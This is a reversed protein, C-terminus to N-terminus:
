HLKVANQEAMMGDDLCMRGTVKANTVLRLILLFGGIIIMAIGSIYIENYLSRGNPISSSANHINPIIPIGTVDAKSPLLM